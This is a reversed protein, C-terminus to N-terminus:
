RAYLGIIAALLVSWAVFFFRTQEKLGKELASRFDGNIVAFGEDIRAFGLRMEHQLEAIDGRLPDMTELQNVLDTAADAGLAGQLKRLLHPSVPM